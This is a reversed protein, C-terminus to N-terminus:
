IDAGCSRDCDCEAKKSAQGTYFMTDKFHKLTINRWTTYHYFCYTWRLPKPFKPGFDGHRYYGVEEDRTNKSHDNAECDYNPRTCENLAFIAGM